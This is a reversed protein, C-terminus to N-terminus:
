FCRLNRKEKLKSTRFVKLSTDLEPHKKFKEVQVEQLEVYKMFEPFDETKSEEFVAEDGNRSHQGESVQESM